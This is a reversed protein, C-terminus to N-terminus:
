GQALMVMFCEGCMLKVKPKAWANLSCRPCSYKTKSARKKQKIAKEQISLTRAQWNLRFGETALKKYARQYAGKNVIYHSMQQGTRRGGVEGSDSPMLGVQEMKTAWERNHYGARSTKGFNTQWMHCMEHALTSLIDADTRGAFAEPNLAIEDVAEGSHHRSIFQSQWYYGRAYKDRQLTILCVPLIGGFLEANFFDFARDFATYEDTTITM